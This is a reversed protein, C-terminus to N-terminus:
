NLVYCYIMGESSVAILEVRGDLNVDSLVSSHGGFFPSGEFRSGTNRILHVRNEIRSHLTILIEQESIEYVKSPASLSDGSVYTLVPNREQDFGQIRDIGQILFERKGDGDLDVFDCRQALVYAPAMALSTGTMNGVM